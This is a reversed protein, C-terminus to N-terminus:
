RGTHFGDTLTNGAADCTEIGNNIQNNSNFTLCPATGARCSGNLEQQWRCTTCCDGRM